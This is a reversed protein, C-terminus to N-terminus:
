FNSLLRFNMKFHPNSSAPPLFAERAGSLIATFEEPLTIKGVFITMINEL